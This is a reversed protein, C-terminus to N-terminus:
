SPTPSPPQSPLAIPAQVDISGAQAFTLTLPISSSARLDRKIGRLLLYSGGPKFSTLEGTKIQFVGAGGLEVTGLQSSASLLADDTTGINAVSLYIPIDAGVAYSDVPPAAAYLDRIRLDGLSAQSGDIAAQEQATVANKGSGCGATVPAVALVAVVFALRTRRKM